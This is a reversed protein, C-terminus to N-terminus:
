GPSSRRTWRLQTAVQNLNLLLTPRTHPATDMGDFTALPPGEHDTVVRNTTSVVQTDGWDVRDGPAFKPASKPAWVGEPVTRIGPM